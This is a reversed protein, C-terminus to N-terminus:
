FIALKRFQNQIAQFLVIQEVVFIASKSGFGGFREHSKLRKKKKANSREQDRASVLPRDNLLDTPRQREGVTEADIDTIFKREAIAEAM